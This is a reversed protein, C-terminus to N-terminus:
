NVQEDNKNAKKHKHSKDTFTKMVSASITNKCKVCGSSLQM